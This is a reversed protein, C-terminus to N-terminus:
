QSLSISVSYFQLMNTGTKHGDFNHREREGPSSLRLSPPGTQRPCIRMGADEWWSTQDGFEIPPGLPGKQRTTAKEVVAQRQGRQNGVWQSGTKVSNYLLEIAWEIMPIAHKITMLRFYSDHLKCTVKKRHMLRHTYGPIKGQGM